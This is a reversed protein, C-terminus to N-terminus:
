QLWINSGFNKFNSANDANFRVKLMQVYFYCCIGSRGANVQSRIDTQALGCTKTSPYCLVTFELSLLSVCLDSSSHSVHQNRWKRPAMTRISQSGRRCSLDVNEM